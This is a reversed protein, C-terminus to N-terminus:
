RPLAGVVLEGAVPDGGGEADMGVVGGLPVPVGGGDGLEVRPVPVMRFRRRRDGVDDGVDPPGPLDEAGGVDPEPGVEVPDGVKGLPDAADVGVRRDEAGEGLGAPGVAVEGRERAPVDEPDELLRLLRGALVGRLSHSEFGRSGQPGM